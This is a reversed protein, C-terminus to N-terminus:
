WVIQAASQALSRPIGLRILQTMRWERVLLDDHDIAEYRPRAPAAEM